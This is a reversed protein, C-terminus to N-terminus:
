MGYFSVQTGPLATSLCTISSAGVPWGISLGVSIGYFWGCVHRGHGSWNNHCEVIGSSIDVVWMDVTGSTATSYGPIKDWSAFYGESYGIEIGIKGTSVGQCM